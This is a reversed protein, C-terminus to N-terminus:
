FIVDDDEGAALIDAPEDAATKDASNDGEAKAQALRKKKM